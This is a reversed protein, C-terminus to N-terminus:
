KLKFAYYKKLHELAYLGPSNAPINDGDDVLINLFVVDNQSWITYPNSITVKHYYQVNTGSYGMFSSPSQYILTDKLANSFDDVSLSLDLYAAVLDAASTEKEEIAIYIDISNTGQPIEVVGEINRTFPTNSGTAMIASGLLQPKLNVSQSTNGFVDKAGNNIWDRVNQIYETKNDESDSGPEVALPMIGSNGGLDITLRQMIMSQNANGPLVRYDLPDALNQKIIDHYVLSYYTSEITRFDPEFTGDHCGSNACTPQFINQHLGEISTPDLVVVPITDNNIDQDFPNPPLDKECATFGMLMALFIFSLYYPTFSRMM